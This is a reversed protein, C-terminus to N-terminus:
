AATSSSRRRHIVGVVFRRIGCAERELRRDMAEGAAADAFNEPEAARRQEPESIGRADNEPDDECVREAVAQGEDWEYKERVDILKPAPDADLM